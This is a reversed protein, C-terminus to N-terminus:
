GELLLLSKSLVEEAISKERSNKLKSKWVLCVFDLNLFTRSAKWRNLNVDDSRTLQKIIMEPFNIRCNVVVFKIELRLEILSNCM